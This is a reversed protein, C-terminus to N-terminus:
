VAARLIERKLKKFEAESKILGAKKEFTQQQVSNPICDRILSLLTMRLGAIDTESAKQPKRQQQTPISPRALEDLQIETATALPNEGLIPGSMVVPVEKFLRKAQAATAGTGVGPDMIKITTLLGEITALNARMATQENRIQQIINQQAVVKDVKWEVQTLRAELVRLYRMIEKVCPASELASVVDVTKDGAPQLLQYAPQTAGSLLEQPEQVGTLTTSEETDLDSELMSMKTQITAGRKFSGQGDAESVASTEQIQQLSMLKAKARMPKTPTNDAMIHGTSQAGPIVEEYVAEEIQGSQLKPQTDKTTKPRAGLDRPQKKASKLGGPRPQTPPAQIVDSTKEKQLKTTNKESTPKSGSKAPSPNTVTTSKVFHDVTELGKDIWAAIEEDSPNIDM